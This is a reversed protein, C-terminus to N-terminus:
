IVGYFRAGGGRFFGRRVPIDEFFNLGSSFNGRVIVRLVEVSLISDNYLFCSMHLFKYLFELLNGLYVIEGSFNRGQSIGRVSFNEGHLTAVAFFDDEGGWGFFRLM